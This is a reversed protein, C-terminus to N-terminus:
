SERSNDCSEAAVLRADYTVVVHSFSYILTQIKTTIVISLIMAAATHRCRRCGACVYTRQTVEDRVDIGKAIRRASAM